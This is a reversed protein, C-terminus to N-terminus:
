QVLCFHGCKNEKETNHAHTQPHTHTHKHTLARTHVHFIVPSVCHGKAGGEFVSHTHRDSENEPHVRRRSLAQVRNLESQMPSRFAHIRPKFLIDDASQFYESSCPSTDIGIKLVLIVDYPSSTTFILHCLVHQKGDRIFYNRSM